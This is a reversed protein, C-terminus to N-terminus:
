NNNYQIKIGYLMNHDLLAPHTQNRYIMNLTHPNAVQISTPDKDWDIRYNRISARIEDDNMDTERLMKMGSLGKSHLDQCPRCLRGAGRGRMVVKCIGCKYVMPEPESTYCTTHSQHITRNYAMNYDLLEVDFTAAM